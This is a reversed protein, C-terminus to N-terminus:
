VRPVHGRIMAAQSSVFMSRFDMSPQDVDPRSMALRVKEDPNVFHWFGTMLAVSAQTIGYWASEDIEPVLAHHAAASRRLMAGGTKKLEAIQDVSSNRELTTHLRPYLELLTVHALATEAWIEAIRSIRDKARCRGIREILEHAFSEREMVFITLYIEDRSSFYRYINAKSIGASEAIDGLTVSELEKVELMAAASTLIDSRREAIQDPQRARIWNM